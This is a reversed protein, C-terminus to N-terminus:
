RYRFKLISDTEREREGERECLHSYVYGRGIIGMGGDHDYTGLREKRSCKRSWMYGRVSEAWELAALGAFAAVVQVPPRQRGFVGFDGRLSGRELRREGAALGEVRADCVVLRQAAVVFVVLRARVAGRGVLEAEVVLVAV